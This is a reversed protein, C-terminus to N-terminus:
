IYEPLQVVRWISSFVGRSFLTGHLSSHRFPVTIVSCEDPILNPMKFLTSIAFYMYVSPQKM